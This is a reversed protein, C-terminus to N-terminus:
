AGATTCKGLRGGWPAYAKEDEDEEQAEWEAQLRDYLANADAENDFVGVPNGDNDRVVLRVIPDREEDEITTEIEAAYEDAASEAESPDEMEDAVVEEGDHVSYLPTSGVRYQNREELDAKAESEEDFREEEEGQGDRIVYITLPEITWQNYNALDAQASAEDEYDEASDDDRDFISWRQDTEIRLSNRIEKDMNVAFATAEESTNFVGQEDGAHDYVIWVTVDESQDDIDFPGNLPGAKTALDFLAKRGIPTIRRM